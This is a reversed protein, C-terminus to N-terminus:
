SGTSATLATANGPPEITIRDAPLLVRVTTGEGPESELEMVGGHLEILRKTLPLGLGTGEHGRTSASLAQYFPELVREMDDKSIGIGTDRIVFEVGSRTALLSAHVTGNEPTFKVANSLLNLLIQLLRVSDGRFLIIEEPLEQLLAIEDQRARPTVMTVARTLLGNLEVEENGIELKGAEAKSMDLIQNIVQLLHQGSNHIDEAYDRYRPVRIEGFVEKRIIDSFGIIANLPTRLEHSMMALFESKAVSALEAIRNAQELEFERHKLETIDTAFGAIAGSATRKKLIRFWRGDPYLHDSPRGDAVQHARLRIAVQQEAEEKSLENSLTLRIVDEYAIPRPLKRFAENHINEYSRNWVLLRNHRDYLAFPSPTIEVAERLLRLEDRVEQLEEERKVLRERLDQRERTRSIIFRILLLLGPLAAALIAILVPASVSDKVILYSALFIVLISSSGAILPLGLNRIHHTRHARNSM